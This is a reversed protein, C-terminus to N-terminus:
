AEIGLMATVGAHYYHKIAQMETVLDAADIIAEPAYRGTLVLTAGTRVSEILALVDDVEVLGTAVALNVEDLVILDYEGSGVASAAVSLGQAAQDWDAATGGDQVFRQRGFRRVTIWESLQELIVLESSPCGKLFQVFLVQQGAGAAQVALGIAATTKGKGNGTYVHVFGQRRSVDVEHTCSVDIGHSM